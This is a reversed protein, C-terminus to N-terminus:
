GKTVTRPGKRASSGDRPALVADLEQGFAVAVSIKHDERFLGKRFLYQEMNAIPDDNIEAQAVGSRGNGSSPNTKHLAVRSSDCIRFSQCDILTPGRGIRARSISESAVRYVAVADNGDVSIAPVGFARSKVSAADRTGGDLKVMEQCVFLIPLEKESAFTLTEQWSEHAPADEGCFVAVIQGTSNVKSALAVRIALHLLDSIGSSRMFVNWASFEASRGNRDQDGGESTTSLGQKNMLIRDLPVGKVFGPLLSGAPAIVIDQSDLDLGIGAVAAEQGVSRKLWPLKVALCAREALMRSKLMATYLALLKENSILSFGEDKGDNEKAMRASTKATKAMSSKVKNKLTEEFGSPLIV